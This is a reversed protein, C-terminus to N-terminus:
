RKYTFFIDQNELRIAEPFIWKYFVITKHGSFSAEQLDARQLVNGSQPNHCPACDAGRTEPAFKLANPLLNMLVQKIRLPDGVYIKGLLSSAFLNFTIGKAVASGYTFSSVSSVLAGFDFPESALSM